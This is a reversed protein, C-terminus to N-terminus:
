GVPAVCRVEGFGAARKLLLMHADDEPAPALDIPAVDERGLIQLGPEAGAAM